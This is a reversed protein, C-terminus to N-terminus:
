VPTLPGENYSPMDARSLLAEGLTVLRRAAVAPSWLTTITQQGAHALRSHMRSDAAVAHLCAALAQINGSDFLLGNRGHEIMTKAAGGANSAIVVCGEAMAENIVAGWGEYSSSPLVYVHHERMHQRVIEVPQAPLFRYSGVPLLRKALVALRHSEPGSGILTLEAEPHLKLLHAFAKILTDVRKWALMRGAWLVRFVGSRTACSWASDPGPTFYGWQWARGVFSAVTLMDSAAYGGIPLYHFVPSTALRHFQWAMRAFGPHLLRARGIPPKWWRESFYFTLKGCALRRGFPGLLREGCLVIDAADWWEEFAIRDSENEGVRLIWPASDNGWGLKLREECPAQIAAFRFNDEGALQLLEQALPLQHHSVINSVQLIKMRKVNVSM